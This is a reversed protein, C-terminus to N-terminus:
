SVSETQTTANFLRIVSDRGLVMFTLVGLVTGYPIALCSIGAVIMCLTRSQRRKLWMATQLKAAALGIMFLFIALGIGAFFWGLFAPPAQGKSVNAEQQSGVVSILVGMGVYMLGFMSFFATTAASIMYGLSLLKLHEEDIICQRTFEDTM